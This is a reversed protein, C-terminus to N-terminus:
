RSLIAHSLEKQTSKNRVSKLGVIRQGDQSVALDFNNARIGRHDRSSDFPANAQFLKIFIQPYHVFLSIVCACYVGRVIAVSNQHFAVSRQLQLVETYDKLPEAGNTRIAQFKLRSLFIEEYTFRYVLQYALRLEVNFLTIYRITPLQCLTDTKEREYHKKSVKQLCTFLESSESAPALSFISLCAIRAYEKNTHPATTTTTPKCLSEEVLLPASDQSIQTTVSSRFDYFQLLLYSM